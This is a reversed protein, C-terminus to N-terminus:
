FFFDDSLTAVGGDGTASFFFDVAASTEVFDEDEREAATSLGWFTTCSKRKILKKNSIDDISYISPM